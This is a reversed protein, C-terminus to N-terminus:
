GRRWCRIAASSSSTTTSASGSSGWCRPSCGACSRRRRRARRAPARTPASRRAGAAGPPRAQREADAAAAGAGRVGVAGHLGAPEGCSAGAAGGCRREAGRRGRWWTPSWGSTAPSCGRARDGGGAGRRCAAGSGGRDRGARHPLRPDEGARRRPRPVGARRRARWRALDGTRYMRSGPPGIRIPWSGSRRRPDAVFREATLGARGLYGRALGAGAIYLEGAVGVPVPQLAADLVYVRYNPLPRGIPITTTGDDCHQSRTGHRSRPARPRAMSMCFIAHSEPRWCRPSKGSM